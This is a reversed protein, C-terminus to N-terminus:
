ENISIFTFYLQKWIMYTLLGYGKWQWLLQLKYLLIINYQLLFCLKNNKFLFSLKWIIFTFIFIVDMYTTFRQM